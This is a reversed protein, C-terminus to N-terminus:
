QTGAVNFASIRSRMWQVSLDDSDQIINAQFMQFMQFRTVSIAAMRFSEEIALSQKAAVLDCRKTKDRGDCAKLIIACFVCSLENM